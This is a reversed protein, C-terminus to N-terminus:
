NSKCCNLGCKQWNGSSPLRGLSTSSPITPQFSCLATIVLKTLEAIVHLMTWCWHLEAIALTKCSMTWSTTPNVATTGSQHLETHFIGNQNSLAAIATFNSGKRAGMVHVAWHGVRSRLMKSATSDCLRPIVPLQLHLEVNIQLLTYESHAECLRWEVTQRWRRTWRITALVVANASFKGTSSIVISSPGLQFERWIWYGPLGVYSKGATHTEIIRRMTKEGIRNQPMKFLLATSQPWKNFVSYRNMRSEHNDIM